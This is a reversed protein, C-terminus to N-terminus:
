ISVQKLRWLLQKAFVMSLGESEQSISCFPIESKADTRKDETTPVCFLDSARPPAAATSRVSLAPFGRTEPRPNPHPPRRRRRNGLRLRWTPTESAPAAGGALLPHTKGADRLLGWRHAAARTPWHRAHPPRPLSPLERARRGADCRPQPRRTPQRAAAAAGLGPAPPRQSGSAWSLAPRRQLRSPARGPLRLPPSRPQPTLQTGARLGRLPRSPLRRRPRPLLTGPAVLWSCRGRQRKLIGSVGPPGSGELRSEGQEGRAGSTLMPM